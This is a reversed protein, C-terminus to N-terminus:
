NSISIGVCTYEQSNQLINLLISKKCFLEACNSRFTLVLQLISFLIQFLTGARRLLTPFVRLKPLLPQHFFYVYLRLNVGVGTSFSCLSANHLAARTFLSKLLPVAMELIQKTFFYSISIFYANRHYM